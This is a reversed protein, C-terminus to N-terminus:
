LFNFAAHLDDGAPKWGDDERNEFIKMISKNYFTNEQLM